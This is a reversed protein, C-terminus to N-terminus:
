GLALVVALGSLLPVSINDDILRSLLFEAATATSAGIFAATPPLIFLGAALCCGFCACAGEVTKGMLHVKGFRKGVIGAATDGLTMFILCAAAVERPYIAMATAMSFYYYTAGNFSKKESEKLLDLTLKSIPDKPSRRIFRMVDFVAFYLTVASFFIAPYLKDVASILYLMPFATGVLHLASRKSQSNM